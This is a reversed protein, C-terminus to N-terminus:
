KYIVKYKSVLFFGLLGSLETSFWKVFIGQTAVTYSAELSPVPLSHGELSQRQGWQAKFKPPLSASATLYTIYGGAPCPSVSAAQWGFACPDSTLYQPFIPFFPIAPMRVANWLTLWGPQSTAHSLFLHYLISALAYLGDPGVHPTQVTNLLLPHNSFPILANANRRLGGEPARHTGQRAQREQDIGSLTQM